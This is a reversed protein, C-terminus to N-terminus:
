SLQHISCTKSKRNHSPNQNKFQPATNLPHRHSSSGRNQSNQSSDSWNGRPSSPWMAGLRDRYGHFSTRSHGSDHSRRDLFPHHRHCKSVKTTIKNINLINYFHQKMNPGFMTEDFKQNPEVLEKAASYLKYQLDLHCKQVAQMSAMGIIRIGLKLDCLVQSLNLNDEGPALTCLADPLSGDPNPPSSSNKQIYHQYKILVAWLTVIPQIGKLIADSLWKMHQDKIWDQQSMSKKVEDNIVVPKLTRANVLRKAQKLTEQISSRSHINWFWLYLAKVLSENIPPSTPDESDTPIADSVSDNYTKQLEDELNEEESSYHDDDDYKSGSLPNYNYQCLSDHIIDKISSLLTEQQGSTTATQMDCQLPDKKLQAIETAQDQLLKSLEALSKGNVSHAPSHGLDSNDSSM